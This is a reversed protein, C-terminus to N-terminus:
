KNIFSFLQWDVISSNHKVADSYGAGISAVNPLEDNAQHNGFIQKISDCVGNKSKRGWYHGGSLTQVRLVPLSTSKFKNEPDRQTPVTAFAYRFMKLNKIHFGNVGIKVSVHKFDPSYVLNWLMPVQATDNWNTKCQINIVRAEKFNETVIKNFSTIPSISTDIEVNFAEKELYVLLLDAESRLRYGQYKVTLAKDLGEPTLNKNGKFAVATTGCLCINLYWTILCEWNVGANSVGANDRDGPV